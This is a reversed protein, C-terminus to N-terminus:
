GIKKVILFTGTHQVVDLVAEANQHALISIADNIQFDEITVTQIITPGVGAAVGRSIAILNTNKVIGVDLRTASSFSFALSAVIMYTGPKTFKINGNEDLECYEKAKVETDWAIRTDVEKPLSKASLITFKAFSSMEELHGVFDAEAEDLREKLVTFTKSKPDSVRAQAAEVSSDGDIVITNLQEQTSESISLAQTAKTIAENSQDIAQNLKDTGQRLSDQYTIHSVTM